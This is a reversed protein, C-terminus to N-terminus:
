LAGCCNKFKKGTAECRDNRSIKEGKKLLLLCKPDDSVNQALNTKEQVQKIVKLNLLVTVFDVKLKDLLAEFLEFAEKKYEVLPDRQGYSRLGIVQRLQELYQIHSKWNVDISQLFIRKEIEKAQDEGIEKIRDERSLNFQNTIEKKLEEDSKVSIEKLKEDSRHHYGGLKYDELLEIKRHIIIKPHHISPIEELLSAIKNSSAEPKRLHFKELGAEMLRTIMVAEQNKFNPSSIVTIKLSNRM